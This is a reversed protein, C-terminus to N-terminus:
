LIAQLVLMLNVTRPRGGKSEPTLLSEFLNYQELTLEIGYALTM